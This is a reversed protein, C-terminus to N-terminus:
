ELLGRNRLEAACLAMARTDRRIVSGEYAMVVERDSVTTLMRVLNEADTDTEIRDM